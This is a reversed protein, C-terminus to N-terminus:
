WRKTADRAAEGAMAGKLAQQVADGADGQSGLLAARQDAARRAAADGERDEGAAGGAAVGGGGGAAARRGGGSDFGAPLGVMTDACTFRISRREFQGFEAFHQFLDAGATIGARALDPHHAAYHEHDFCRPGRALVYAVRYSTGVQLACTFRHPRGQFQGV